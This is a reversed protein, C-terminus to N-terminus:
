DKVLRLRDRRTSRPPPPPPVVMMDLLWDDLSDWSMDIDHVTGDPCLITAPYGPTM